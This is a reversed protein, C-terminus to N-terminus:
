YNEIYEMLRSKVKESQYDSYKDNKENDVNKVFWIIHQKTFQLAAEKDDKGCYYNVVDSMYDYYCPANYISNPDDYELPHYAWAKGMQEHSILATYLLKCAAQTFEADAYYKLAMEDTSCHSTKNEYFYVAADINGSEVLQTLLPLPHDYKPANKVETMVLHSDGSAISSEIREEAKRRRINKFDMNSLVVLAILATALTITAGKHEGCWHKISTFIQQIKDKDYKSSIMKVIVVTIVNIAVIILTSTWSYTVFKIFLIWEIPIIVYLLTYKISSYHQNSWESIKNKPEKGAIKRLIRVIIAYTIATLILLVCIKWFASAIETTFKRGLYRHYYSDFRWYSEDINSFAIGLVWEVLILFGCIWKYVTTLGNPKSEPQISSEQTVGQPNVDQKVSEPNNIQGQESFNTM